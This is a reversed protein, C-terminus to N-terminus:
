VRLVLGKIESYWQTSYNDGTHNVEQVHYYGEAKLRKRTTFQLASLGVNSGESEIKILSNPKIAPNLLVTVEAGNETITPSSIMGTSPTIIVATNVNAASNIPETIVEGDQISWVFNNENALNDLVEASKGSYTHGRTGLAGDPLGSLNGKKLGKFTNIVDSVINKIKFGERFSKNYSSNEWDKQGDGSYIDAIIDVDTVRQFVNRIEGQYILKVNGRYGASLEIFTLRTSLTALTKADANYLSILASNPNSIRSKTIAFNIRLGSITRIIGDANYIKLNYERIYQRAV